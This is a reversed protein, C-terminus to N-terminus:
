TFVPIEKSERSRKKYNARRIGNMKIKNKIAAQKPEDPNEWSFNEEDMMILNLDSAMGSDKRGIIFEM